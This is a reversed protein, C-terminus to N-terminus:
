ETSGWPQVTCPHNMGDDGAVVVSIATGLNQKWCVGEARNSVYTALKSADVIEYPESVATM